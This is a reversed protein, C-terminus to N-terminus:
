KDIKKANIPKLSLGTRKLSTVVTIKYTVTPFITDWQGKIENWYKPYKRQLSSGFGVTDVKLDEQMKELSFEVTAKIFESFKLNIKDFIDLNSIDINDQSETINGEANIEINFSIKDGKIVPKISPKIKDM